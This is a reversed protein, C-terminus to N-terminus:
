FLRCLVLRTCLKEFIEILVNQTTQEICFFECLFRGRMENQKDNLENEHMCSFFPENPRLCSACGRNTNPNYASDYAYYVSTM